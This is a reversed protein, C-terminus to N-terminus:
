GAGAWPRVRPLFRPVAARYRRYPEGFRAELQPEELLPIYLLNALIFLMAWRGHPASRLCLALGCLMFIVGSIMPNRVYRYPGRVVLRRPPDWPALTGRGEVVFQRLSAVFLSLGVTAIPVGAVVAAWGGLGDPWGIPTRSGRGIWLPVVVVAMTPLVLISLLHRLAYLMRVISRAGARTQSLVRAGRTERTRHEEAGGETGPASPRPPPPEGGDDEESPLLHALKPANMQRMLEQIEEPRMPVGVMAGFQLFTCVFATRLRKRVSVSVGM